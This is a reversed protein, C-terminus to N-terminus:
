IGNKRVYVHVIILLIMFFIFNMLSNNVVKGNYGDTGTSDEPLCTLECKDDGDHNLQATYKGSACDDQTQLRSICHTIVNSYSADDWEDQLKYIPDMAQSICVGKKAGGSTSWCVPTKDTGCDLDSPCYSTSYDPAAPCDDCMKEGNVLKRVYPDNGTTLCFGQKEGDKDKFCVKRDGSNCSLDSPCNGM